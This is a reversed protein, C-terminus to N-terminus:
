QQATPCTLSLAPAHPQSHASHICSRQSHVSLRALARPPRLHAAEHIGGPDRGHDESRWSDLIRRKTYRTGKYYLFEDCPTVRATARIYDWIESDTYLSGDRKTLNNLNFAAVREWLDRFVQVSQPLKFFLNDWLPMSQVGERSLAGTIPTLHLYRISDLADVWFSPLLLPAGETRPRCLDCEQVAALVAGRRLYSRAFWQDLVLKWPAQSADLYSLLAHTQLARVHNPWDLLALGLGNGHEDIQRRLSLAERRIWPQGDKDTGIADGDFTPDKSWLLARVDSEIADHFWRPAAMVQMWYRPRSYVMANAIMVRGHVTLTFVQRWRAMATKTRFYLHEWFQEECDAANEDNIWFPIGLLKTRQGSALWNILAGQGALGPHDAPLGRHRLAGCLIGEFKNPNARMGTASEYVDLIRWVAPLSALTRLLLTTDDAFQSIKHVTEGVQVGEIGDDDLVLRTLAEAVVLFAIPSLPCGQPVGCHINYSPGLM